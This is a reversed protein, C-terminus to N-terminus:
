KKWGFVIGAAALWAFLVVLPKFASAYDCIPQWNFSGLGHPLDVGSPCTDSSAMAIPTIATPGVETKALESETPAKGLLVCSARDPHEKCGDGSGKCMVSEPNAKCFDSLPDTKLDNKSSTTNGVADKNTTKTDTTCTGDDKCTKTTTTTTTTGDPNTKTTTTAESGGTPTQNTEKTTTENSTQGNDNSNKTATEKKTVSTDGGSVCTTGSSSQVYGQGSALCSEPTKAKNADKTADSVEKLQDNNLPGGGENTARTGTYSCNQGLAQKPYIHLTTGTGKQFTVSQCRVKCGNTGSSDCSSATPQDIYCWQMPAGGGSGAVPCCQGDIGAQAGNACTCVGNIREMGPSCPQRTCNQGDLTYGQNVPCTWNMANVIVYQIIYNNTDFGYVVDGAKMGKANANPNTVTCSNIRGDRIGNATLHTLGASCAGDFSSAPTTACYSSVCYETVSYTAPITEAKASSAFIILVFVLWFWLVPRVTKM